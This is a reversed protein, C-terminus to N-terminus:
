FFRKKEKALNKIRRVKLPFLINILVMSILKYRRRDKYGYITSCTITEM